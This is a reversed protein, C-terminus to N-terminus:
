NQHIAYKKEEQGASLDATDTQAQALRKALSLIKNEFFSELFYSQSGVSAFEIGTCTDRSFRLLQM